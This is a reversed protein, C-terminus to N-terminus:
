SCADYYADLALVYAALAVYCAPQIPGGGACASLSATALTLGATAKVCSWSPWRGLDDSYVQFAEPSHYNVSKILNVFVNMKAFESDTLNLNLINIEYNKLAADFGSAEIDAVFNDVLKMDSSSVLGQSVLRDVIVDPNYNMNEALANPVNLETGLHAKIISLTKSSMQSPNLGEIETTIEQSVSQYDSNSVLDNHLSYDFSQKNIILDESDSNKECSMALMVVALFIAVIPNRLTKM